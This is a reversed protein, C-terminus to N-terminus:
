KPMAKLALYAPRPRFDPYGPDSIAWWYQEHIEPDWDPDAIYILSMLGIWPSWNEKAWQYARVFYDAKTEEEVRHWAYEPRIPDSTWGFELVAVQKDGDGYREMIRRLDEVRRFCFFRQGGYDPSSAAEDPSLEPPAKFGAGHVGLVDFYGDSNGGMVQYMQELYVDDPVAVPPQTGTPTLGASVVMANPDVQKIRRYAEGLLAVYQAANPARGGWERALNPENWIEYARIRGKYRTAMAHLFDGLDAYNDPPGNTPYNGGTWKPQHDIRVLLDLQLKNCESVIWDVRSWDYAGKSAGELERWGINQKVWGFGADQIMGMDRSAVEPRWWLFAQMGYEPSNMRLPQPAPITPLPTLTPPVLTETPLVTTPTPLAPTETPPAVPTETAPILTSTRSPVVLTVSPEVAQQAITFTPRPTRTAVAVPPPTSRGCRTLWALGIAGAVVLVVAFWVIPRNRGNTSDFGSPGIDSM